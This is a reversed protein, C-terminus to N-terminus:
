APVEMGQPDWGAPPQFRTGISLNCPMCAAVLNRESTEGGRSEPIVHHLSLGIHTNCYRCRYADRELVRKRLGNSMKKKSRSTRVYPRWGRREDMRRQALLMISDFPHDGGQGEIWPCQEILVDCFAEVAARALDYQRSEEARLAEISDFMQPDATIASGIDQASKQM